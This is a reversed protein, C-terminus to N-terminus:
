QKPLFNRVMRWSSWLSIGRKTWRGLVRPHRLSVVALLGGVPLLYRKVQLVTQWSHDYRRTSDLWTQRAAGLEVRQQQIQQVLEAIHAERDRRKM